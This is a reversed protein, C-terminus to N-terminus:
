ILPSSNLALLSAALAMWGFSRLLEFRKEWIDTLQSPIAPNRIFSIWNEIAYNDSKAGSFLGVKAVILGDRLHPVWTAAHRPKRMKDTVSRKMSPRGGYLPTAIKIM